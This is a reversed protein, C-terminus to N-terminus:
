AAMRDRNLLAALRSENRNPSMKNRNGSLFSRFPRLSTRSIVEIRLPLPNRRQGGFVRMAALRWFTIRTGKRSERALVEEIAPKPSRTTGPRTTMM